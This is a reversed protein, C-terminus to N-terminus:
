QKLIPFLSSIIQKTIFNILKISVVFLHVKESAEQKIIYLTFKVSGCLFLCYHM